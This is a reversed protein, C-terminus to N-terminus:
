LSVIPLLIKGHKTKCSSTSIAEASDSCRRVVWIVKRPMSMWGSGPKTQKTADLGTGPLRGGAGKPAM